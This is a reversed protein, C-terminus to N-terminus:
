VSSFIDVVNVFCFFILSGIHEFEVPVRRGMLICHFNCVHTFFWFHSSQIGIIVFFTVSSENKVCCDDNNLGVYGYMTDAMPNLMSSSRSDRNNGISEGKQALSHSLSTRQGSCLAWWLLFGVRAFLRGRM